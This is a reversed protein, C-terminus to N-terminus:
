YAAKRARSNSTALMAALGRPPVVDEEDDPSAKLARLLSAAPVPEKFPKADIALARRMAESLGTVPIVLEDHKGEAVLTPQTILGGQAAGPTPTPLVAKVAAGALREIMGAWFQRKQEAAARAKDGRAAEWEKVAQDFNAQWQRILEQRQSENLLQQAADRISKEAEMKQKNFALDNDINAGQVEVSRDANGTAANQTQSANFKNVEVDLDSLKKSFDNIANQDDRARAADLQAQLTKRREEFGARTAEVDIDQGRVQGSAGVVQGAAQVAREAGQQELALAADLGRQASGAIEARRLGKREQGRTQAIAGASSESIRQLARSVGAATAAAGQGRGAATEQLERLNSLQIDRAQDGAGANFDTADVSVARQIAAPNLNAAGITSADVNREEIKPTPTNLIDQYPKGTLPDVAQRFTNIATEVDLGTVGGTAGTSAPPKLGNKEAVLLAQYDAEGTAKQMAVAPPEGAAIAQDYIQVAMGVIERIASEAAGPPMGQLRARAANGAAEVVAARDKEADLQAVTPQQAAIAAQTPAYQQTGPQPGAATTGGISGAIPM